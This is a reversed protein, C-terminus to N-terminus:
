DMDRNRNYHRWKILPACCGLGEFLQRKAEEGEESDGMLLCIYRNLKEDWLLDPCRKMYGYKRHSVECQDSICCWGCGVCPKTSM